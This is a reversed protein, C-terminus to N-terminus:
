RLATQLALVGIGAALFLFMVVSVMIVVDFYFDARRQTGPAPVRRSRWATFTGAM